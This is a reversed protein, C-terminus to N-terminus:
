TNVENQDPKENAKPTEKPQKPAAEPATDNQKLSTKTQDGSAAAQGELNSAGEGLGIPIHPTLKKGPQDENYFSTAHIASEVPFRSNKRADRVDRLHAAEVLEEFYPPLGLDYKEPPPPRVIQGKHDMVYVSHLKQITLRRQFSNQDGPAKMGGEGVVYPLGYVGYPEFRTNKGKKVAEYNLALPGYPMSTFPILKDSRPGYLIMYNSHLVNFFERLFMSETKATVKDYTWLPWKFPVQDTGYEEKFEEMKEARNEIKMKLDTKEDDTMSKLFPAISQDGLRISEKTETNFSIGGTPTGTVLLLQMM